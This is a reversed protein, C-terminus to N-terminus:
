RNKKSSEQWIKRPKQAGKLATDEGMISVISTRTKQTTARSDRPDEEEEGEEPHLGEEHVLDTTKTLSLIKWMTSM